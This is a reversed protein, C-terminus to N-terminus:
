ENKGGKFKNKTIYSSRFFYPIDIIPYIVRDYLLSFVIYSGKNKNCRKCCVVFNDEGIGNGHVVPIIHDLEPKGTILENCYVCVGKQKEFLEKRKKIRFKSSERM